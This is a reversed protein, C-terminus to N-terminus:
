WGATIELEVMGVFGGNGDSVNCILKEGILDYMEDTVKIKVNNDEQVITFASQNNLPYTFEWIASVTENVTGDTNYFAPSLTVYNSNGLILNGDFSITAYTEGEVPPEVEESSKKYNCIGLDPRDKPLEGDSIQLTDETVYVELLGKDGYNYKTSDVFDIKYPRPDTPHLDVFLRRDNRLLTTNEDHPLLITKRGAPLTMVKTDTDGTGQVRNNTVCPYSLITGTPSQFRLTYNCLQMQCEKYGDDVINVNSNILWTQNRYKVYSGTHVGSEMSLLIRKDVDSQHIPNTHDQIIVQETVGDVTVSYGEASHYRRIDFNSKVSNITEEKTYFDSDNLDTDLWDTRLNM